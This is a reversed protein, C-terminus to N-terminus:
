RRRKKSGGQDARTQLIQNVLDAGTSVLGVMLDILQNAKAIFSKVLDANEKLKEGELQRGLAGIVDRADIQLRHLVEELDSPEIRREKRFREQMAKATTIGLAMEEDLLRAAARVIEAGSEVIEGAKRSSRRAKPSDAQSTKRAM